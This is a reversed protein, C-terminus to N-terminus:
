WNHYAAWHNYAGGWGGYTNRAYTSCWRLQTIPNTEWDAGASAMKGGPTAQGLGYGLGSPISAPPSAPCGGYQGQLKTPCWGSERSVIYDVYGFDTKAIGAATMLATKDAGIDFHTGTAVIQTVPEQAVVEQIKTRGVEKGNELQIQYTVLKKGPAGQQRVATVGFSLSDDNVNQVPM